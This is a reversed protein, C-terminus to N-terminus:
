ECLEWRGHPHEADIFHCRDSRRYHQQRPVDADPHECGDVWDWWICDGCRERDTCAAELAAIAADALSKTRTRKYAEVEPLM